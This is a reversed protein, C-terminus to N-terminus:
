KTNQKINLNTMQPLTKNPIYTSVKIRFLLTSSFESYNDNMAYTCIPISDPMPIEYLRIRLNQTVDRLTKYDDEDIITTVSFMINDFGRNGQSETLGIRRKYSENVVKVIFCPIKLGQKPDHDYCAFDPYLEKLYLRIARVYDNISHLERM